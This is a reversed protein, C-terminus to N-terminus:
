AKRKNPRKVNDISNGSITRTLQSPSGSDCSGPNALAHNGLVPYEAQPNVECGGCEHSTDASISVGSNGSTLRPKIARVWSFCTPKTDVILQKRFKFLM